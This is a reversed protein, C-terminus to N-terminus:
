KKTRLIFFVFIFYILVTWFFNTINENKEVTKKKKKSDFRVSIFKLYISLYLYKGQLTYMSIEEYLQKADFNKM